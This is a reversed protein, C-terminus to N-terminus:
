ALMEKKDPVIEPPVLLDVVVKHQGRHRALNRKVSNLMYYATTVSPFLMRVNGAGTINFRECEEVLFELGVHRLQRRAQDYASKGNVDLPLGSIFM